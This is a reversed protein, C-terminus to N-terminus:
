QKKWKMTVKIGLQSSGSLICINGNGTIGLSFELETEDAAITDLFVEGVKKMQNRMSNILDADLEILQMIGASIAGTTYTKRQASENQHTVNAGLENSITEIYIENEM